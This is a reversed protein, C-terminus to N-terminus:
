LTEEKLAEAIARAWDAIMEWDRFDGTPAKIRKMIERDFFKMKEPPPMVGHFIAIDRVQIEDAFPKLAEPFGWGEVLERPDGEETPGSSFLWVPREALAKVNNKLFAGAEKRWQGMYVASGLVVAGYPALDRVKDVPLVDAELGAEGLVEGIKEAIGATSGYKTAYAVLVRNDM